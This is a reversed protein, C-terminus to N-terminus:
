LATLTAAAPPKSLFASTHQNSGSTLHTALAAASIAARAASTLSMPLSYSTVSLCCSIPRSLGSGTTVSRWSREDCSVLTRHRGTKGTSQLALNKHTRPCETLSPVCWHKSTGLKEWLLRPCGHWTQTCSSLNPPSLITPHGGGFSLISARTIGRNTENM